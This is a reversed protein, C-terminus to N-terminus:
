SIEGELHSPQCPKTTSTLLEHPLARMIKASVLIMAFRRAEFKPGIVRQIRRGDTPKPRMKASYGLM